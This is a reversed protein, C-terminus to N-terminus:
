IRQVLMILITHNVTLLIVFKIQSYFLQFWRYFWFLLRRVEKQRKTEDRLEKEYIKMLKKEMREKQKKDWPTHLPQVGIVASKRHVSACCLWDSYDFQAWLIPRHHGNSTDRKLFQGLLFLYNIWLIETCNEQFDNLCSIIYYTFQHYSHLNWEM